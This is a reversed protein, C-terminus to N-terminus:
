LLYKYIEFKELAVPHWLSHSCTFYTLQATDGLPRAAEFHNNIAKSTWKSARRGASFLNPSLQVFHM